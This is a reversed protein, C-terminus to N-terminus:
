FQAIAMYTITTAYLGPPQDNSINTVYTTTYVNYDTASTAQAIADGPEFMFLNPTAYNPLVTGTGVGTVDQGTNPNNNARLNIGFQSFGALSPNPITSAPIVNNGSTMTTGLTYIIYGTPDNTGAAFQTTVAKVTDTSLDGFSVSRGVTSSCNSAVTVGACFYLYPPVYAATGFQGATSFAAAGQDTRPGSGDTSAYTMIRLYATTNPTSPNIAGTFVFEVPGALSAVAPRTLIINNATSSPDISFGTEGSQGSLTATNMSFGAPAACPTDFLPTDECFQLQVSGLTDPTTIRFNITYDTVAGAIPTRPAVSRQTLFAAQVQGTYFVSATLMLLTQLVLTTKTLNRKTLM